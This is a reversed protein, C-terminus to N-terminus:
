TPFVVDVETPRKLAHELIDLLGPLRAVVSALRSDASVIRDLIHLIRCGSPEHEQSSWGCAGNMCSLLSSWPM